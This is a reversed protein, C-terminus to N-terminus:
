VKKVNKTRKVQKTKKVSDAKDVKSVEKTHPETETKNERNSYKVADKASKIKEKELERLFNKQKNRETQLEEADGVERYLESFKKFMDVMRLSQISTYGNLLVYKMAAYVSFDYLIVNYPNRTAAIKKSVEPPYKNKFENLFIKNKMYPNAFTYIFSPSNSFISMSMGFINESTATLNHKFGLVVDYFIGEVSSPIKVLIYIKDKTILSACKIKTDIKAYKEDFDSKQKKFNIFAAGKGAPNDFFQQITIHM